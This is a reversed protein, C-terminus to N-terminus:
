ESTKFVAAEYPRFIEDKEKSESYNNLIEKGFASLNDIKSPKEFNCIVTFKCDEFQREYILYNDESKSIVNVTGQRFAPNSKRLRLLERYFRYVSKESKLDKELNIEGARSGVSLWPKHNSFGAYETNDWAFPRRANDRSGFNIKEIAEHKSLGNKIFTNYANISEIDNFSEIGEYTSAAIGIEQGQYIFPIGKLLYFMTAICTASEYRLEKDNAARSIFPSRDHNDTFLSHLLGLDQMQLQWKVIIDRVM